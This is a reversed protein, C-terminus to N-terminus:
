SYYEAVQILVQNFRKKCHVTLNIFDCADQYFKDEEEDDEYIEKFSQMEAYEGNSIDFIQHSLHPYKCALYGAFVKHDMNSGVQDALDEGVEIHFNHIRELTLDRTAEEETLERMPIDFGDITEIEQEM